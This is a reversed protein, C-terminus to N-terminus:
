IALVFMELQAIINGEFVFVCVINAVTYVLNDGVTVEMIRNIRSSSLCSQQGVRALPRAAVPLLCSAPM